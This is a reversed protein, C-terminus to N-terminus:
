KNNELSEELFLSCCTDVDETLQKVLENKNDFKLEPRLYKIFKIKINENYIQKDFDCINVEVRKTEKINITPNFGVSLAGGYTKGDHIVHVYYVGNIPLVYDLYCINATPFGLTTGIKDGDVVTGEIEFPRGLLKNATELDGTQLLNKILTSSVVHDKHKLSKITIVEFHRELDSITGKQYAGFRYDEGIVIRIVGIQKLFMIFEDPTLDALEKTFNIMFCIDMHNLKFLELKKEYSIIKKHNADRLVKVPHPYFTLVASKSDMHRVTENFLEKHGVHLGDFNGITLTIPDNNKIDKYDGKYIKM